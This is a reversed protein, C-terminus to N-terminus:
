AYLDVVGQPDRGSTRARMEVRSAVAMRPARHQPEGHRSSFQPNGSLSNFVSFNSVTMGQSAFMERLRPQAIEIAQRADANAAGFQLSAEGDRVVVRIELEGLEEPALKMVAEVEGGPAAMVMLQAGLRDQWVQTGVPERLLEASPQVAMGADRVAVDPTGLDPGFTMVFADTDLEPVEASRSM